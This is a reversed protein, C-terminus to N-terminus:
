WLMGSTQHVEDEEEKEEETELIVSCVCRDDRGIFAGELSFLRLTHLGQSGGESVTTVVALLPEEWAWDIWVSRVVYSM